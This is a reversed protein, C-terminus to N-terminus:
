VPPLQKGIFEKVDQLEEESSSHLLGRYSKFEPSKLLTKLVSATMQGWKLPVIPDCDGHCQLVPLVDSCKMANPFYKSLPLWGSLCIVGGIPKPYSLASYLALAGGQSFGGIMIRDSSIGAKIEGEIMDHVLHSASKIGDEDEPGSADLSRLDFWSPMTFGANLTVPMSSATPCILKCHAPKLEAITSSWGHGTDGLGHLFILSSTQKVTAAVIIPNTMM